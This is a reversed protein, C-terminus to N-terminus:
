RRGAARAGRARYPADAAAWASAPWTYAERAKAREGSAAYADGLSEYLETRTVYLNSAQMGGRLAPELVAIAERARGIAALSRALLLNTRTYGETVSYIASRFEAIAALTDHRALSLLGRAHHHLRRDRGLASVRGTAQLSDALRALRTTDGSAAVADALHAMSWVRYRAVSGAWESGDWVRGDSSPARLISDGLAVAEAARGMELLIQAEQPASRMAADTGDMQRVSSRHARAVDLAERLRGQQRLSVALWWLADRRVGPRSDGVRDRLIRDATSFDGARLALEARYEADDVGGPVDRWARQRTALAERTRGQRELVVALADIAGPSTSDIALWRRATREASGLSDALLDANLADVLADCGRCWPSREHAAIAASDRAAADLLLTRARIFEGSWLLARGLTYAGDPESPYRVALTEALARWTTDNRAEAWDALILLRERDSAHAALRVARELLSVGSSTNSMRRAARWGHYAAMAFTSDEALAADFLKRAGALDLAYYAQLGEQYLRRASLSTTSVGAVANPLVTRNMREGLMEVGRSALAFPDRGSVTVAGRLVNTALSVRRVELRLSDGPLRYLAGEILDTAGARRAADALAHQEDSSDAGRARLELLRGESLVAVDQMRLLESSLLGRMTLGLRVSDAGTRDAISGVALLARPDRASGKVAFVIVAIAAAAVVMQALRSRHRATSPSPASSQIAPDYTPRQADIPVPFRRREAERESRSARISTALALTEPSPEVELERRMREVFEDFVLLASARDGSRDLVHLRRRLVREDLPALESARRLARDAAVLDGEQESGGVVALAAEVARDRLRRREDELWQDFDVSVDGAHFGDLLDGGYLDLAGAADGGAFTADFAAADCWVAPSLEVFAGRPRVSEPGLARRLHYLAQRLAHRAAAEDMDPWFLGLIRDRTRTTPTRSVALYSLLAVLKPRALIADAVGVAATRIVCRGLL